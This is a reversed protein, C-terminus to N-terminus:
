KFKPAGGGRPFQIAVEGWPQWMRKWQDDKPSYYDVFKVTGRMGELDAIYHPATTEVTLCVLVAFEGSMRDVVWFMSENIAKSMSTLWVACGESRCIERITAKGIKDDAMVNRPGVDLADMIDYDKPSPRQGRPNVTLWQLGKRLQGRPRILAGMFLDIKRPKQGLTKRMTELDARSVKRLKGGPEVMYWNKVHRMDAAVSCGLATRCFEADLTVEQTPEESQPEYIGGPNELHAFPKGKGDIEAIFLEHGLRKGRQWEGWKIIEDLNAGWQAGFDREARVSYDGGTFEGTDLVRNLEEGDFVRYLPIPTLFKGRIMNNRYKKRAQETPAEYIKIKVSGAQLHRAAVRQASAQDVIASAPIDGAHLVNGEVQGTARLNRPDLKTLDVKIGSRQRIYKPDPSLWVYKNPTGSPFDEMYERRKAPYAKLGESTDYEWPPWHYYFRPVEIGIDLDGSPDMPITVKSSARRRPTSIPRFPPAALAAEELARWEDEEWSPIDTMETPIYGRAEVGVEGTVVVDRHARRIAGPEVLAALVGGGRSAYSRAEIARAYWYVGPGMVGRPSEQLGRMSRPGGGRFLVLRGGKTRPPKRKPGEWDPFAGSHQTTAKRSAAKGMVYKLSEMQDRNLGKGLVYKQFAEAFAEGINTKGYDSVPEIPKLNGHEDTLSPPWDYETAEGKDIQVLDNFRGRQERTMHKFWYRHGLEHLLVLIIQYPWVYLSIEDTGPDYQGNFQSIDYGEQKAEAKEEDTLTGSEKSMYFINGYWLKGLGRRKLLDHTKLVHKIVNQDTEPRAAPDLIVLKTRGLATERFIGEDEPIGAREWYQGLDKFFQGVIEGPDTMDWDHKLARAAIRSAKTEKVMAKIRPDTFKGARILDRLEPTLGGRIAQILKQWPSDWTSFSVRKTAVDRVTKMMRAWRLRVLYKALREEPRGKNKLGDDLGALHRNLSGLAEIKDEILNPLHQLVYPSQTWEALAGPIHTLAAIVRDVGKIAGKFNHPQIPKDLEKEVRARQGDVWKQPISVAAETYRGVTRVM